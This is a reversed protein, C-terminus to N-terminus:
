SATTAVAYGPERDQEAGTEHVYVSVGGPLPSVKVSFTAELLSCYATFRQSSGSEVVERYAEE